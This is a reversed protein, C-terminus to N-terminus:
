KGLDFNPLNKLFDTDPVPFDFKPNILSFDIVTGQADTIVWKRLVMPKDTFVLTLQGALPDRTKVLSIRIANAAREFGTVTLKGDTFSFKDRLLFAAPTDELAIHNVQKLETDIYSLFEGNAIIVIPTPPAYDIRLNNPRSLLFKGTATEGTSSIQLFDAQLTKINDLYREAQGLVDTIDPTIKIANAAAPAHSGGLLAFSLIFAALTNRM